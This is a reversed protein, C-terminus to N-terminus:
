SPNYLHPVKSLIGKCAIASFLKLNYPFVVQIYKM